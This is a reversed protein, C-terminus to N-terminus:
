EWWHEKGQQRLKEEFERWAETEQDLVEPPIPPSSRVEKEIEALWTDLAEDSRIRKRAAALAMLVEEAISSRKPDRTAGGEALQYEREFYRMVMSLVEKVRALESGEPATDLFSRLYSGLAEQIKSQAQPKNMCEWQDPDYRESRAM